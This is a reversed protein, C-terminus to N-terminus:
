QLLRMGCNPCQTAEWCLPCRELSASDDREDWNAVRGCALTVFPADMQCALHAGHHREFEETSVQERRDTVITTDTM